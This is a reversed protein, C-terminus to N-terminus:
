AKDTTIYGDALDIKCSDEHNEVPVGFIPLIGRMYQKRNEFLVQVAEFIEQSIIACHHNKYLYQDRDQNNKKHKHNFLDSTFTKWTLVDGCYRENSLIYYISGTSWETAGTKTQCGIETLFNAIREKSWGILYADYIFNVIRAEAKNIELPAYKIYRGTVDKPRDYGLLPPTLLKGDKFRRNLPWVMAERKKVSEEEALWASFYM